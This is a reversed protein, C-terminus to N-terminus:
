HRRIHLDLVARLPKSGSRSATLMCSVPGPTGATFLYYYRGGVGYRFLGFTIKVGKPCSLKLSYLDKPRSNFLKGESTRKYRLGLKAPKWYFGDGAGPKSVSEFGRVDYAPPVPTSGSSTCGALLAIIAIIRFHDLRLTAM